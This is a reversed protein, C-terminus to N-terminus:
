LLERADTVDEILEDASKLRANEIKLTDNEKKLAAIQETLAYIIQADDSMSEREEKTM